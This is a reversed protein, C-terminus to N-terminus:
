KRRRLILLTGLLGLVAAAPEPVVTFTATPGSTPSWDNMVFTGGGGGTFSANNQVYFDITYNGNSLGTTLNVGANTKQWFKNNGSASTASSMTINSFSGPTDGVKTVRYYLAASNINDGSGVDSFTNMEFGNLGLSQASGLDITGFSGLAPNSGDSTLGFGGGANTLSNAPSLVQKFSNAGGNLTTVVYFNGFYGVAGHVHGAAAVTGLVLLSKLKM